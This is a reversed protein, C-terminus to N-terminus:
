LQIMSIVICPINYASIGIIYIAKVYIQADVLRFINIKMFFSNFFYRNPRRYCLSATNEIWNRTLESM